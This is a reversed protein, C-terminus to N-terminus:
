KAHCKENQCHCFYRMVPVIRNIRRQEFTKVFCQDATQERYYGTDDQFLDTGDLLFDNKCFPKISKSMLDNMVMRGMVSRFATGTIRMGNRRAVARSPVNDARIVSYVTDMGLVAFAYDRCAIAAETAFGRHWFEKEFMYGIEPLEEDGYVQMSIGAHGIMKGTEKLVVAWMGFGEQAYCQIQRKLWSGIERDSFVREYAYTVDSDQLVRCLGPLDDDVLERLLLRGTEAIIAPVNKETM